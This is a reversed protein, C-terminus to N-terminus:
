ENVLKFKIEEKRVQIYQVAQNQQRAPMVVDSIKKFFVYFIIKHYIKNNEKLYIEKNKASCNIRYDNFSINSDSCICEIEITFVQKKKIIQKKVIFYLIGFIFCFLFAFLTLITLGIKVSYIIDYIITFWFLLPCVICSLIYFGYRFIYYAIRLKRLISAAKSKEIKDLLNTAHKLSSGFYNNDIIIRNFKYNDELNIELTETYIEM